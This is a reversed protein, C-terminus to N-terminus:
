MHNIMTPHGSPCTGRYYDFQGPPDFVADLKWHDRCYSRACERCWFPAYERCAVSLADFDAGRIADALVAASAANPEDWIGDVYDDFDRVGYAFKAGTLVFVM